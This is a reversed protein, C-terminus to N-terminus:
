GDPCRRVPGTETAVDTAGETAEETADGPYTTVCGDQHDALELALRDMLVTVAWQGGNPVGNAVVAVHLRQADGGAPRVHGVVAKVDDLTGTKGVFRGDAPTGVLRRRLTGTQGAVAMSDDWVGAHPGAMMAVDLDALQGAAVRDLRSLGSGDAVQLGASPVGLADFVAVATRNAAAWSGDGTAAHSAALLLTDALHNDSRQMTFALLESVPPSEVAALPDGSALPLRTTSTGGRVSIGREALLAAFVSATTQVPDSAAHLEVQVPEDPPIDVDVTLGADVTLRTIHRANQDHLYSRRWGAAVDANSWGSGDGVVRGTVATIGEAAVADALDEISTAPRSPYVHRRYDESTLVPDGGGRIVLDGQVVGDVIEGTSAVTTTFRHDAGLTSLVTAATVSKMTSAPMLRQQDGRDYVRRGEADRVAVAVDAGALSPGLADLVGDIRGQLSRLPPTLDGRVEPLQATAEVMPPSTLSGPWATAQEPDGTPAPGTPDPEPSPVTQSPSPTGADASGAPGDTPADTALVDVVDSDSSLAMAAGVGGAVVLVALPVLIRGRRRRRGVFTPAAPRRRARRM